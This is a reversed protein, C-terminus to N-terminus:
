SQAPSFNRDYLFGFGYTIRFGGRVAAIFPALINTGVMVVDNPKLFIDPQYGAFVENLRVLVFAERSPGIRRILETRQPIAVGDLM